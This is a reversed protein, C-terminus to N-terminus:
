RNSHRHNKRGYYGHGCWGISKRGMIGGWRNIRLKFRKGSKCVKAKYVPLYRDVFHIKSFGRHRLSKRIVHLPLGKNWVYGPGHYHKKVGGPHASASSVSAFLAVGIVAAMAFIKKFM